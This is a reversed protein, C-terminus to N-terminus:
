SRFKARGEAKVQEWPITDDPNADADAVRRRLEDRQADTLLSPGPEEAVSEWLEHALALREERTLKDLGLSAITVPMPNDEKANLKDCECRRTVASGATTPVSLSAQRPQAFRAEQDPRAADSGKRKWDLAM